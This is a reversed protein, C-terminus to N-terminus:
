PRRATSRSSNSSTAVLLEGAGTRGFSVILVGHVEGAIGESNGTSARDHYPFAIANQAVGPATVSIFGASSTQPLALLDAVFMTFTALERGEPGTLIHYGLSFTILTKGTWGTFGTSSFLDRSTPAITDPMTQVGTFLVDEVISETVITTRLEDTSLFRMARRGDSVDSVFFRDDDVPSPLRTSAADPLEFLLDRISLWENPDGSASEDSSLLRDLPNPSANLLPVDDHLDFPRTFGTIIIDDGVTRSITLTGAAGIAGGDIM